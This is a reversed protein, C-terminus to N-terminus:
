INDQLGPLEPTTKVGGSFNECGIKLPNWNTVNLRPLLNDRHVFVAGVGAFALLSLHPSRNDMT